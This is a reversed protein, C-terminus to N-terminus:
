FVRIPKQEKKNPNKKDENIYKEFNKEFDKLKDSYM